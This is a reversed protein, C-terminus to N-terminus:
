CKQKNKYMKTLKNIRLRNLGLYIEFLDQITCLLINNKFISIFDSNNILYMYMM